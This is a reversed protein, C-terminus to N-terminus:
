QFVEVSKDAVFRSKPARCLYCTIHVFLYKGEPMGIKRFADFAGNVINLALPDALGVDESAFVLCRRLIYLPDEKAMLMLGLYKLASKEDSARMAKIYKSTSEARGEYQDLQRPEEDSQELLKRCDKENMPRNAQELSWFRYLVELMAILKRGDGQNVKSIWALASTDLFKEQKVGLEDCSRGILEEMKSAPIPKLRLVLCRSLLARNLVAFPSETTAGVFVMHGQEVAPLLVDQQSRTLRHVEDMFLLTKENHYVIQDKAKECVARLEKAGIDVANLELTKGVFAKMALRVLTTKGSGPPGFVVFSPFRGTKFLNQWYNRKLDGTKIFDSWEQPRLREPLPQHSKQTKRYEYQFLDM